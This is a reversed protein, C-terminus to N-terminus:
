TARDEIEWAHDLVHWAIRRVAYRPLWLAGGRPGRTPLEGRTAASLADVISERVRRIQESRHEDRVPEAKWGLRRLYSREADLVHQVIADVDRGGGRPGKRLQTGSADRAATDFAAWCASLIAAFRDRDTEELPRSDASPARDPAGFDTTANGTLREAVALDSTAAPPELAIGAPRLVRAYRPGYAVLAQLASSEDRAGRCWGPWDIAGAFARKQGAEVYVDITDL